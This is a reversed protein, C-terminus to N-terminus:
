SLLACVDTVHPTASVIRDTVTGTQEDFTEVVVVRGTILAIDPLGADALAAALSKTDPILLDRGSLVIRTGGTAADPGFSVRGPIRIDVSSDEDSLRVVGNGVIQFGSKTEVFRTTDVLTEVTVTGGCAHVSSPPPGEDASASSAFSLALPAALAVALLRRMSPDGTPLDVAWRDVAPLNYRGSVQAYLRDRASSGSITCISLGARAANHSVQYRGVAPGM